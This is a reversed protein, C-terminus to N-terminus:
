LFCAACFIFINLDRQLAHIYSLCMNGVVFLPYILHLPFATKTSLTFILTLLNCFVQFLRYICRGMELLYFSFDIKDNLFFLCDYFILESFIRKVQWKKWYDQLSNMM